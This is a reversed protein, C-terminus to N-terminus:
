LSFPLRDELISGTGHQRSFPPHSVPLVVANRRGDDDNQVSQMQPTCELQLHMGRLTRAAGTRDRPRKLDGPGCQSQQSLSGPCTATSMCLGDRQRPQVSRSNCMGRKGAEGSKMKGRMM